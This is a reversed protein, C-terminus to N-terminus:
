SCGCAALLSCHTMSARFLDPRGTPRSQCAMDGKLLLKPQPPSPTSSKALLEWDMEESIVTWPPISNPDAVGGLRCAMERDSAATQEQSLSTTLLNGDTQCARAISRTMQLDALISAYHELNERYLEAALQSDSLEGELGKGKGECAESLRQSDQIQLQIIFAPSPENMVNFVNVIIDATM